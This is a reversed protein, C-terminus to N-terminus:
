DAFCTRAPETWHGSKALVGVGYADMRLNKLGETGGISYAHAVYRGSGFFHGETWTVASGTRGNITGAFLERGVVVAFGAPEIWLDGLYTALGGAGFGSTWRSNLVFSFVTRDNLQEVGTVTGQDTTWAGRVAGDCGAPMPLPAPTSGHAPSYDVGPFRRFRDPWIGDSIGLAPGDDPEPLLCALLDGVTMGVARASPCATQGARASTKGVAPVAIVLGFALMAAGVKM